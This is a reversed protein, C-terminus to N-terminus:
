CIKQVTNEPSFITTGCLLQVLILVTLSFYDHLRLNIKTIYILKKLNSLPHTSVNSSDCIAM